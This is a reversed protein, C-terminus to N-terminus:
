SYFPIKENSYGYFTPYDTNSGFKIPSPVANSRALICLIFNYDQPSERLIICLLAVAEKDIDM